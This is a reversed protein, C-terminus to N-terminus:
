GEGKTGGTIGIWQKIGGPGKGNSLDKPGGEVSVDRLRKRRTQVGAEGQKTCKDKKMKGETKQGAVDM